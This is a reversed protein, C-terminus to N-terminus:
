TYRVRPDLFAYVIDVLLNAAVIFLSAFITVGMVAPFDNAFIAKVTYQGVGPLNFVTETIFAGGLLIGLDMGFMTVVPTLASRLGHKFIVRRESLGKARATRIYDESMTEILNGRVMRAYFAAFTLMLALWPLIFKGKLVSTLLSEDYNLGSSPAWHLKFWFIYLFVYGLWFVPASVGFLAFLMGARDAISRRKVASIIGIPIGVLMWLVAAGLALVITVPLRRFIEDKVPIFGVYSYYVDKNLFLGPWPILGKAFKGYQVYWPKNLGLVKRIHNLQQPTVNHAGSGAVRRAPDGAPLKYFILFTVASVIWLVLILFLVRRILYRGM